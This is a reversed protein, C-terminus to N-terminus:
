HPWMHHIPISPSTKLLLITLFTCLPWGIFWDLSFKQSNNLELEKGFVKWKNDPIHLSIIYFNCFYSKWCPKGSTLTLGPLKSVLPEHFATSQLSWHLFVHAPSAAWLPLGIRTQFVFGAKWLLVTETRWVQSIEVFYSFIVSVHPLQALFSLFLLLNPSSCQPLFSSETPDTGQFMAMSDLIGKDLFCIDLLMDRARM